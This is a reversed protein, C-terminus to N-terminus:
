HYRESRNQTMKSVESALHLLSVGAQRIAHAVFTVRQHHAQNSMDGTSTLNSDRAIGGDDRSWSSLVVSRPPKYGKWGHSFLLVATLVFSFVFWSDIFFLAKYVALQYSSTIPINGFPQRTEKSLESVGQMHDQSRLDQSCRVQSFMLVLQEDYIIRIGQEIMQIASRARTAVSSWEM